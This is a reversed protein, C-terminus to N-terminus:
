FCFSHNYGSASSSLAGYVYKRWCVDQRCGFFGRNTDTRMSINDSMWCMGGSQTIIEEGQQEFLVEVAPVTTGILRSKM